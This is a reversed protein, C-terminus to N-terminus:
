KGGKENVDVIELIASAPINGIMDVESSSAAFNAGKTYSYNVTFESESPWNYMNRLALGFEGNNYIKLESCAKLSIVAIKGVNNPFRLYNAKAASISDAAAIFQSEYGDRSGNTLFSRLTKEATPDKAVIGIGKKINEVDQENLVRFVKELRLAELTCYNYGDFVLIVEEDRITYKNNKHVVNVATKKNTM